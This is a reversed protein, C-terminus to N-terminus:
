VKSYLFLLHFFTDYPKLGNMQECFAKLLVDASANVLRKWDMVSTHSLMVFSHVRWYIFEIRIITTDLYNGQITSKLLLLLCYIFFSYPRILRQWSPSLTFIEFLCASLFNDELTNKCSQLAWFLFRSIMKKWLMYYWCIFNLCRKNMLHVPSCFVLFLKNYCSVIILILNM